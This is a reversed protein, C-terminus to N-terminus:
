ATSRFRRARGCACDDGVVVAALPSEEDAGDARIRRATKPALDLLARIAGGTRERARLELVQGLLVLITIVAAAEFYVPSRAARTASRRRSFGRRSRRSSASRGPSASAWPSSRSCTSTAIRSRRWAASRLVALGGVARGADRVCASGLELDRARRSAPRLRARGDRPRRGAVGAGARDLVAADHRRTGPEAGGRRDDIAPELAMGCIPCAGPGVQRIEPHMPCTYIAGAPAPPTASAQTKPGIYAIPDAVFKERCRASCFFFARGDHEAKHKATAPDVSMGCVPDTAEPAAQTEKADGGKLFRAPDALFADRCGACCFHFTEGGHEAVAGPKEKDVAMRCVPDRAQGEALPPEFLDLLAHSAGPKASADTLKDREREPRAADRMAPSAGEGRSPALM